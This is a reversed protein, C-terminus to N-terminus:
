WCSSESKEVLDVYWTDGDQYMSRSVVLVANPPLLIENETGLTSLRSVDKGSSTAIRFVVGGKGAFKRATSLDLSTSTYGSWIIERGTLYEKRVLDPSKNGRFVTGKFSPLKRLARTLFYIFGSWPAEARLRLAENLRYYVNDEQEGALGVDYTYLAIAFVDEKDLGRTTILEKTAPSSSLSDVVIEVDDLVFALNEMNIEAAHSLMDERVTKAKPPGRAALAASLDAGTQDQAGQAGDATMACSVQPPQVSGQVPQPQSESGTPASPVLVVWAEPIFGSAGCYEVRIWGQQPAELVRVDAGKPVSITGDSSAEFAEHVKGMCPYVPPSATPQDCARAEAATAIPAVWEAPVYGKQGNVREVLRWGDQPEGHLVVEEGVAVSVDTQSSAEYACLVTGRAAPAAVAVAAPAVTAAPAAPAPVPAVAAGEIFELFSAPVYGKRGNLEALCWGGQEGELIELVDGQQFALQGQGAQDAAPSFAAKARARSGGQERALYSAPVYGSAGSQAVVFAWGDTDPVVVEVSEGASVRIGGAGEYPAVLRSRVGTPGRVPHTKSPEDRSYWLGQALDVVHQDGLTVQAPRPVFPNEGFSPVSASEQREQQQPEVARDRDTGADAGPRLPFAPYHCKALPYYYPNAPDPLASVIKRRYNNRVLVAYDDSASRGPTQQLLSLKMHIAYGSKHKAAMDLDGESFTPNQATFQTNFVVQLLEKQPDRKDLSIVRVIVDGELEANPFVEPTAVSSDINTNSFVETCKSDSASHVTFAVPWLDKGKRQARISSLVVPSSLLPSDRTSTVTELFYSVYRRQAPTLDPQKNTRWWRYATKADVFRRAFLEYCLVVVGVTSGEHARDTCNFVAVNRADAALWSAVSDVAQFLTHLPVVGPAPLQYEIGQVQPMLRISGVPSCSTKRRPSSLTWVIHADRHERELFATVSKTLPATLVIISNSLRILPLPDKDGSSETSPSDM